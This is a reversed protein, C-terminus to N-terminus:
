ISPNKVFEDIFWEPILLDGCYVNGEKTGVMSNSSGQRILHVITRILMRLLKNFSNETIIKLSDADTKLRDANFWFLENAYISFDGIFRQDISIFNINEATFIFSISLLLAGIDKNAGLKNKSDKSLVGILYDLFKKEKDTDIM